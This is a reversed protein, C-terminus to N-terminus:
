AKLCRALDSATRGGGQICQQIDGSTASLKVKPKNPSSIFAITLFLGLFNIFSKM